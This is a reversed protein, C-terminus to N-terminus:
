TRFHSATEASGDAQWTFLLPQCADGLNHLKVMTAAGANAKNSM